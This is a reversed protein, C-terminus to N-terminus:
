LIYHFIQDLGLMLAPSLDDTNTEGNVKFVTLKINQEILNPIFWEASAWSNLLIEATKNGKKYM